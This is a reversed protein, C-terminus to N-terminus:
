RNPPIRPIPTRYMLYVQEPLMGRGRESVVEIATGARPCKARMKFALDYESFRWPSTGALRQGGQAALSPTNFGYLLAVGHALAVPSSKGIRKVSPNRLPARASSACAISASTSAKSRSSMVPM